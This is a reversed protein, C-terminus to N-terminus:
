LKSETRKESLGNGIVGVDVVAGASSNEEHSVAATTKNEIGGGDLPGLLFERSHPAHLLIAMTISLTSVVFVLLLVRDVVLAVEQWESKIVDRRDQEALRFENKEMTSQVKTLTQLFQREVQTLAAQSPPFEGSPSEMSQYKGHHQERSQYEKFTSREESSTKRVPSHRGDGYLRGLNLRQGGSGLRGDWPGWSSPPGSSCPVSNFSESESEPHRSSNGPRPIERTVRTWNVRSLDSMEILDSNQGDLNKPGIFNQFLTLVM